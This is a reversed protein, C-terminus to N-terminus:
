IRLVDDCQVVGWGVTKRGSKMVDAATIYRSMAQIKGSLTQRAILDPGSEM